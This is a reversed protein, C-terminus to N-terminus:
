RLVAAHAPYQRGLDAELHIQGRLPITAKVHDPVATVRSLLGVIRVPRSLAGTRELVAEDECGGVRAVVSALFWLRREHHAIRLLCDVVRISGDM